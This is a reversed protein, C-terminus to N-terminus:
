IPTLICLDLYGEPIYSNDIFATFIIEIIYLFKIYFVLQPNKHHFKNNTRLLSFNDHKALNKQVRQEQDKQCHRIDLRVPSWDTPQIDYRTFTKGRTPSQVRVRGALADIDM